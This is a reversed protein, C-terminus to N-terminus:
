LEAIAAADGVALPSIDEAHELGMALLQLVVIEVV